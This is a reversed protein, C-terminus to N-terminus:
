RLAVHDGERLGSSVVCDTPTCAALQVEVPDQAGARMVFSKGEAERVAQRPVTLASPWARRVVELRASMGPRMIAADSKELSVRVRFGRRPDAVTAVEEVKGRYGRDSYTDLICRVPMGARIRDDDVDALYGVAEMLTLDPINAITQGPWSSDGVQWKRDENWNDAIVFIGNKPARVALADLTRQASEIERGAKDLAIQLNDLEARSSVEYSELELRAKTLEAEARRAAAQKEQWDHLSLVERPVDAQARTKEAEGKAREFAFQKDQGEASLSARRSELDIGKQIRTLRKEEITQAVATNDFEILRDGERADAGDEALWKIQVQWMESKPTVLDISHVAHLEATVLFIDEVSRSRVVAEDRQSPELTAPAADAGAGPAVGAPSPAAPATDSPGGALSARSFPSSGGSCATALALLASTLVISRSLV